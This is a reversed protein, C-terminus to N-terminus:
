KKLLFESILATIKKVAIDLVDNVVVEDFQDAYALELAARELRLRLMSEDESARGKLREKLVEM